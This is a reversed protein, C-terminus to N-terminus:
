QTEIHHAIGWYADLITDTGTSLYLIIAVRVESAVGDDIRLHIRSLNCVLANVPKNSYMIM